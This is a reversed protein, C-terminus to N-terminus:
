YLFSRVKKEKEQGARIKADLIESTKELSLARGSKMKLCHYTYVPACFTQRTDGIIMEFVMFRFGYPPFDVMTYNPKHHTFEFSVHNPTVEPADLFITAADLRDSAANERFGVIRSEDMTLDHQLYIDIIPKGDQYVPLISINTSKQVVEINAKGTTLDKLIPENEQLTNKYHGLTQYPIVGKPDMKTQKRFGFHTYLFSNNPSDFLSKLLAEVGSELEKDKLAPYTGDNSNAARLKRPSKKIVTKSSMPVFDTVYILPKHDDVDHSAAEHSKILEEYIWATKRAKKSLCPATVFPDNAIVWHVYDGQHNKELFCGTIVVAHSAGPCSPIYIGSVIIAFGKATQEEIFRWDPFGKLKFQTCDIQCVHKFLQQYLNSGRRLTTDGLPDCTLCHEFNFEIHKKGRLLEVQKDALICQFSFKEKQFAESKLAPILSKNYKATVMEICAAWCFNKNKQTKVLIHADHYRLISM